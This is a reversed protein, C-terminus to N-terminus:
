PLVRKWLWLKVICAKMTRSHKLLSLGGDGDKVLSATKKNKKEYEQVDTVELWLNFEWGVVIASVIPYILMKAPAEWRSKANNVFVRYACIGAYGTWEFM